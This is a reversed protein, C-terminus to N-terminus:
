PWLPTRPRNWLGSRETDVQGMCAKRAHTWVKKEGTGQSTQLTPTQTERKM